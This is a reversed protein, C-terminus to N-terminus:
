HSTIDVLFAFDRLWNKDEMQPMEKGKMQLFEKIDHRLEYVWELM